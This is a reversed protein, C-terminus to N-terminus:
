EAADAMRERIMYASPYYALYLNQVLVFVVPANGHSSERGNMGAAFPAIFPTGANKPDALVVHFQLELKLSIQKERLPPSRGAERKKSSRL